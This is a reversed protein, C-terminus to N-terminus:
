DPLDERYGRRFSHCQVDLDKKAIARSIIVVHWPVYAHCRQLKVKWVGIEFALDSKREYQLLCLGFLPRDVNLLRRRSQLKRAM